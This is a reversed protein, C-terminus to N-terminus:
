VCAPLRACVCACVCVCVCVFVCVGSLSEPLEPAASIVGNRALAECVHVM